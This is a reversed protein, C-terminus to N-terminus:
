TVTCMTKTFLLSSTNIHFNRYDAKPILELVTVVLNSLLTEERAQCGRKLKWTTLPLFDHRFGLLTHIFYLIFKFAFALFLLHADVQLFFFHLFSYLLNYYGLPKSYKM